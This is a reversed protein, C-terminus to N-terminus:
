FESFDLQFTGINFTGFDEIILDAKSLDQNGSHENKYGICIMGAAKAATVGNYSDEIVLCSNPTVDIMEAAKRFIMPDPKSKPLDAGSVKFSFYHVLDLKQLVNDIHEM